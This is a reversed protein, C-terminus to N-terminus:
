GMAKIARRKLKDAEKAAKKTSKKASKMARDRAKAVLPDNWFTRAAHAIERYRSRGAQAGLVYAAAAAAGILLLISFFRM